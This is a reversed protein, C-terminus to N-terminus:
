PLTPQCLIRCCGLVARFMCVWGQLWLHQASTIHTCVCVSINCSCGQGALLRLQMITVVVNSSHRNAQWSALHRCSVKDLLLQLVQAEVLLRGDQEVHVAGAAAEAAASSAGAAGHQQKPKPQQQRQHHGQATRNSNSIDRLAGL